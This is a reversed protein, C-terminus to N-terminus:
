ILIKKLAPSFSLNVRDLCKVLKYCVRSSFINFLESGASKEFKSMNIHCCDAKVEGYREIKNTFYFDEQRKKSLCGSFTKLNYLM